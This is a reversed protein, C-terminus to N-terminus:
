PEEGKEPPIRGSVPRPHVFSINTAVLLEGAAFRRAGPKVGAALFFQVLKCIIEGFLTHEFAIMSEM